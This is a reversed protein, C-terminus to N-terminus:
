TAPTIKRGAFGGVSEVWNWSGFLAPSFPLEIDDGPNCSSTGWLFVCLAFVVAKSQVTNRKM